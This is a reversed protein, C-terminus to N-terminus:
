MGFKKQLLLMVIIGAGIIAAMILLPDSEQIPVLFLTVLVTGAAAALFRMIALWKRESDTSNEIAKASIYALTLIFMEIGGGFAFYVAQQWSIRPLLASLLALMVTLLGM